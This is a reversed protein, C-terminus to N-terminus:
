NTKLNEIINNEIDVVVDYSDHLKYGNVFPKFVGIENFVVYFGRKM